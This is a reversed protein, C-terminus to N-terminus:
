RKRRPIKVGLIELEQLKKFSKSSNRLVETIEEEVEKLSKKFNEIQKLGFKRTKEDKKKLISEWFKLIGNCANIGQNCLHVIRENYKKDEKRFEMWKEICIKKKEEDLDTLKKSIYKEEERENLPKDLLKIYAQKLEKLRKRREDIYKKDENYKRISKFDVM